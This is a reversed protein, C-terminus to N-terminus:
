TEKQQLRSMALERRLFVVCGPPYYRRRKGEAEWEFWWAIDYAEKPLDSLDLSSQKQRLRELECLQENPLDYRRPTDYLNWVVTPAEEQDSRAQKWCATCLSSSRRMDELERMLEPDTRRPERVCRGETPRLSCYGNRQFKLYTWNLKYRTFINM